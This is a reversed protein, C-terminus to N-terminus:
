LLVSERIGEVVEEVVNALRKPAFPKTVVRMKQRIGLPVNDRGTVLIVPLGKDCAELAFAFPEEGPIQADSIVLNAEELHERGRDGTSCLIINAELGPTYKLVLYILERIDTEDDVVLITIM